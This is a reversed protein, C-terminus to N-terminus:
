RSGDHEAIFQRIQEDLEVSDHADIVRKAQHVLRVRIAEPLEVWCSVVAAGLRRVLHEEDDFYILLKEGAANM